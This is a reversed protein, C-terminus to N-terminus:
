PSAPQAAAPAKEGCRPLGPPIQMTFKAADITPNIARDIWRVTLDAKAKPQEFRTREPVRFSGGGEGEIAQFDKNQLTWEVQGQADWVTSSLVDWRGERGDLVIEQRWQGDGSRLALVETQNEPNWELTAGTPAPVLPVSGVALLLFDDPALSVQLLQAVAERTCPGTLQCNNNFDVFQFNVGDCALDAAVDGGTPNLANFRAKAGREGMVLVTPKIREGDKWYEMRSEAIFSRAAAQRETLQALLADATPAPYPRPAKARGGCACAAAFAVLVLLAARLM